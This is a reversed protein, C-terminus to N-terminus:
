PRGDRAPRVTGAHPRGKEARSRHVRLSARIQRQRRAPRRGTRSGTQPGLQRGRVAPRGTGRAGQGQRRRRDRRATGRGRRGAQRVGRRDLALRLRRPRRAQDAQRRPDPRAPRGARRGARWATGQGQARRGQHRGLPGEPGPRHGQRGRRRIRASPPPGAQRGYGRGRRGAPFARGGRGHALPLGGPAVSRWALRHGGIAPGARRHVPDAADVLLLRQEGRTGASTQVRGS